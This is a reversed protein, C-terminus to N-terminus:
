KQRQEPKAPQTSKDGATPEPGDLKFTIPLTIYVPVAKGNESAPIWKPMAKVVRLAEADLLDSKSSKAITPTSVSGDKEVVFQVALRGQIDNKRAEEPYTLTKSLFENLNGKFEPMKDVHFPLNRESISKQKQQAWLATGTFSAGALLTFLALMFKKTRSKQKHLM